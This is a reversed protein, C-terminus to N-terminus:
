TNCPAEVYITEIAEYECGMDSRCTVLWYAGEADGAKAQKYWASEDVDLDRYFGLGDFMAFFKLYAQMAEELNRAFLNM